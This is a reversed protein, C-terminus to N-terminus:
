SKVPDHRKGLCPDQRTQRIEHGVSQTLPKWSAEESCRRAVLADRLIPRGAFRPRRSVDACAGRREAGGVKM